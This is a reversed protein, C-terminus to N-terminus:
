ANKVGKLKPKRNKRGFIAWHVTVSAGNISIKDVRAGYVKGPQPAKLSRSVVHHVKM